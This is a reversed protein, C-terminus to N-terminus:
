IYDNTKDNNYYHKYKDVKILPCLTAIVRIPILMYSSIVKVYAKRATALESAM